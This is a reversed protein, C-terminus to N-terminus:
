GIDVPADTDHLLCRTAMQRQAIYAGDDGMVEVAAHRHLVMPSRKTLTEMHHAGMITQKDGEENMGPKHDTAYHLFLCGEHCNIGFDNQARRPNHAKSGEARVQAMAFSSTIM